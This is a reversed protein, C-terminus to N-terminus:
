QSLRRNHTRAQDIASAMPEEAATVPAVSPNWLSVSFGARQTPTDNLFLRELVDLEQNQLNVILPLLAQRAAQKIKSDDEKGLELLRQICQTRSNGTFTSAFKGLTVCAHKLEPRSTSADLPTKILFNQIEVPIHQGFNALVNCITLRDLYFDGESIQLFAFDHVGNKQSFDKENMSLLNVLDQIIQKVLEPPVQMKSLVNLASLSYYTNQEIFNQTLVQLLFQIVEARKTASHYDADTDFFYERVLDHFSNENLTRPTDASAKDCQTSFVNYKQLLNSEQGSRLM